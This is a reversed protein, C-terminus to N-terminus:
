EDALFVLHLFEVGSNTGWNSRSSKEALFILIIKKAIEKHQHVLMLMTHLSRGSHWQKTWHALVNTNLALRHQRQDRTRAWGVQFKDGSFIISYRRFIIVKYCTKRQTVDTRSSSNINVAVVIAQQPSLEKLKWSFYFKIAKKKNFPTFPTAHWLCGM